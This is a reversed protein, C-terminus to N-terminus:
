LSIESEVSIFSLIREDSEVMKLMHWCREVIDNWVKVKSLIIFESREVSEVYKIMNQGNEAYKLDRLFNLNYLQCIHFVNFYTSLRTSFRQFEPVTTGTRNTEVYKMYKVFNWRIDVCREVNKLWIEVSNRRKEVFIKLYLVRKWSIKTNFFSSFRQFIHFFTSIFTKDKLM